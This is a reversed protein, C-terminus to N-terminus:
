RVVLIIVDLTHVDKKMYSIGIRLYVKTEVYYYVRPIKEAAPFDLKGSVPQHL